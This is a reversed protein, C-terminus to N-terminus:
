LGGFTAAQFPTGMCAPHENLALCDPCRGCVPRLNRVPEVHLWVGGGAVRLTAVPEGSRDMGIANVTGYLMWGDATRFVVRDHVKITGLDILALRAADRAAKEVAGREILDTFM